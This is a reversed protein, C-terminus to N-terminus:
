RHFICYLAAAKHKIFFIYLKLRLSVRPYKLKEVADAVHRNCMIRKVASKHARFPLRQGNIASLQNLAFYLMNYKIQTTFDYEAEAFFDCYAKNIVCFSQWREDLGKPDVANSVSGERHIYNYLRRGKLYVFRNTRYLCASGFFSDECLRVAPYRLHWRELLSHKFLCVWNSITPPFELSDFMILCPYLENEIEQKDYVGGRIPQSFPMDRDVYRKTYDCMVLEAGSEAAANYLEELYSPEVTDDADIFAIYDGNANDIGLNRASAAGGNANTLTRVFDHKAALANIIKASNDTSGDDVLILEFDDFGQHLLSDVCREIYKEANYVPVIVSIKCM